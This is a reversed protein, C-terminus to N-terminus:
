SRLIRDAQPEEYMMRPRLFLWGLRCARIALFLGGMCPKAPPTQEPAAHIGSRARCSLRVSDNRAQGAIWAGIVVTDGARRPNRTLGAIVAHMCRVVCAFGRATPSSRAILARRRPQEGKRGRLIYSSGFASRM